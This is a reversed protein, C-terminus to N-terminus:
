FRDVYFKYDSMYDPKKGSGGGGGPGYIIWTYINDIPKPRKTLRYADRDVLPTWTFHSM